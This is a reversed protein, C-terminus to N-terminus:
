GVALTIDASVVGPTTEATMAIQSITIHQQKIATILVAMLKDFEIKQFQIEVTDNSTQKLQTLFQSTGTQNILKQMASMLIVPSVVANKAKQQSELQKIKKNATQMWLVNKQETVIQQRMLAVQVLLPSWIFQYVMLFAIVIGGFAAAQKERFSLTEWKDKLKVWQDKM